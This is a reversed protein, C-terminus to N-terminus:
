LFLKKVNNKLLYPPFNILRIIRAKYLLAIDSGNVDTFADVMAGGAGAGDSYIAKTQGNPITVTAGTGQKIVLNYPGSSGSDGALMDRLSRLFNIAARGGEIGDNLIEDELHELHLNKGSSEYLFKKFSKM